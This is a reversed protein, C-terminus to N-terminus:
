SAATPKHRTERGKFTVGIAAAAVPLHRASAQFTETGPDITHTTNTEDLALLTPNSLIDPAGSLM